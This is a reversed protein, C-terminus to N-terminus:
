KGRTPDLDVVYRHVPPHLAECRQEGVGRPRATVGDTTAPMRVLGIHLDRAAPTVDVARDVLVALDNVDVHRRAAIGPSRTPEERGRELIVPLGGLHDGISGPREAGDQILEHWGREVVRTLVRIVCVDV